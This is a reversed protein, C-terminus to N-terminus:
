TATALEVIPPEVTVCGESRIISWVDVVICVLRPKHECQVSSAYANISM